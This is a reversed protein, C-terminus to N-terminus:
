ENLLYIRLIDQVQCTFVHNWFLLCLSFRRKIAIPKDAQGNFCGFGLHRWSFGAFIFFARRSPNSELFPWFVVASSSEGSCINANKRCLESWGLLLWFVDSVLAYEVIPVWSLAMLRISSDKGPKLEDQLKKDDAILFLTPFLCSVSLDSPNYFAVILNHEAWLCTCTRTKAKSHGLRVFLGLLPTPPPPPPPSCPDFHSKEHNKLHNYM